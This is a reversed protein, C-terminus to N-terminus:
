YFEVEGDFFIGKKLEIPRWDDTVLEADLWGALAEPNGITASLAIFQAKKLVQKLITIVIELTPGRSPDNLLHVEDIIIFDNFNNPIYNELRQPNAILNNFVEAELM